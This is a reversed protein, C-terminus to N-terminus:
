CIGRCSATFINDMNFCKDVQWFHVMQLTITLGDTGWLVSPGLKVLLDKGLLNAPTSPSCVFPHTMRQTGIQVPLIQAAGSFGMVSVTKTSLLPKPPQQTITSYTAGTDMLFESLERGGKCAVHSRSHGRQ